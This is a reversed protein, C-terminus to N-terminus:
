NLSVTNRLEVKLYLQSVLRPGHRKSWWFCNLTSIQTKTRITLVAKELLRWTALINYLFQSSYVMNCRKITGPLDHSRTSVASVSCYCSNGMKSKKTSGACVSGYWSNGMKSKQYLWHFSFLLLQEWKTRLGSVTCPPAIPQLYKQKFLFLEIEVLLSRPPIINMVCNTLLLLVCLSPAHWMCLYM